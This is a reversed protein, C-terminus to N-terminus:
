SDNKTNCFESFPNFLLAPKGFDLVSSSFFLKQLFLTKIMNAVHNLVLYQNDPVKTLTM